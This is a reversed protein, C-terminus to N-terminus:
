KPQDDPMVKINKQRIVLQVPSAALHGFGNGWYRNPGTGSPAKLESRAELRGFVVAWDDKVDRWGSTSETKGDKVIGSNVWRRQVKLKTTKRVQAIKEALVDKDLVLSGSPPDPAPEYCCHLWVLNPWDYSGTSLKFGCDDESLWLGEDTYGFRGLVALDKGNFHQPDKLVECVTVLTVSEDSKAQAVAICPLVAVIGAILVLLVIAKM